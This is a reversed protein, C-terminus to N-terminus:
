RRGRVEDWAERVNAKFREWTNPNTTEWRTRAESELRDWDYDRYRADTALDYGYRYAPSYQEWTGSSAYNNNFRTRFRTEYDAYSGTGTAGEVEVDKRRVTDQVTETHETAEKGVVVEEVVHASKSVVPEERREQVEITQDQFANVDAPNAARDVPHREVVVKEERLNVQAQAPRETVRTRVRVTGGEVERKGVNLQEEVVELKQQEGSRVTGTNTTGQSGSTTRQSSLQERTYPQANPDFGTWGSQRYSQGRENVDVPNYRNLIDEARQTHEDSTLDVSVLAGGRRIGEAYYGAEEEDM